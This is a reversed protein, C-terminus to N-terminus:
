VSMRYNAIWVQPGSYQTTPCGRHWRQGAPPLAIVNDGLESFCTLVVSWCHGHTSKNSVNSVNKEIEVAAAASPM